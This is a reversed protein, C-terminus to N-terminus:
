FWFRLRRRENKAVPTWYPNKETNLESWHNRAVNRLMEKSKHGELATHYDEEFNELSGPAPYGGGRRMRMVRSSTNLPPKQAGFRGGRGELAGYAPSEEVSDWYRSQLTLYGSSGSSHDSPNMRPSQMGRSGKPTPNQQTNEFFRTETRKQLHANYVGIESKFEVGIGAFYRERNNYGFIHQQQQQFGSNKSSMSSNSKKKRFQNGAQLVQYAPYPQRSPGGTAERAGQNGRYPGLPQSQRNSEGPHNQPRNDRQPRNDMTTPMQGPRRAQNNNQEVFATWFDYLQTISLQSLFNPNLLSQPLGSLAGSVTEQRQPQQQPQQAPRQQGSEGRRGFAQSSGKEEKQGKRSNKQEEQENKGGESGKYIEEPSSKAGQSSDQSKGAELRQVSKQEKPTMSFALPKEEDRLTIKYPPSNSNSSDFSLLKQTQGKQGKGGREDFNQSKQQKLPLWDARHGEEQRKGHQAGRYRRSSAGRQGSGRFGEGPKGRSRFDTWGVGEVDEISVAERQSRVRGKGVGRAGAPAGRGSRAGEEEQSQTLKLFMGILNKNIQTRKAEKITVKKSWMKLNKVTKARDASRKHKFIVFAYYYNGRQRSKIIRVYVVEGFSLLNQRLQTPEMRKPVNSVYVTLGELEEVDIKKLETPSYYQNHNSEFVNRTEIQEAQPDTLFYPKAEKSGKQLPIPNQPPNPGGMAGTQPGPQRGSPAVPRKQGQTAQYLPQRPPEFYPIQPQNQAGQAFRQDNEASKQSKPLNNSWFDGIKEDASYPSWLGKRGVLRGLFVRRDEESFEAVEFSYFDGFDLKKVFNRFNQFEAQDKKMMLILEAESPMKQTSQSRPPFLATPPRINFDTSNFITIRGIEQGRIQYEQNVESALLQKNSGEKFKLWYVKYMSFDPGRPGPGASPKGSGEKRLETARRRNTLERTAQNHKSKPEREM